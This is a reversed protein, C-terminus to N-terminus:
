IRVKEYEDLVAEDNPRDYRPRTPQWTRGTGLNGALIESAM